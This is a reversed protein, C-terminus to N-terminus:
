AGTGRIAVLVTGLGIIQMDIWRQYQYHVPYIGRRYPFQGPMTAADATVGDTGYAPQVDIGSRNRGVFEDTGYRSTQEALWQAKAVASVGAASAAHTAEDVNM